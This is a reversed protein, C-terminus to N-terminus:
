TETIEEITSTNLGRYYACLNRADKLWRWVNRESVYNQTAFYIVRNNIENLKLTQTPKYFYVYKIAKYIHEKNKTNLHEITKLVSLLDLKVAINCRDKSLKDTIRKIEKEDPFNLAAYLRFATVIYDRTADKLM